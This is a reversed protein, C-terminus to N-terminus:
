KGELRRRKTIEERLALIKPVLCDTVHEWAGSSHYSPTHPNAGWEASAWRAIEREDDM